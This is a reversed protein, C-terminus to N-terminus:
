LIVLLTQYVVFRYLISCVLLDGDLLQVHVSQWKPYTIGLATLHAKVTKLKLERECVTKKKERTHTKRQIRLPKLSADEDSVLDLEEDAKQVKQAKLASKKLPLVEPEDEEPMAVPKRARAVTGSVPQAQGFKGARRRQPHIQKEQPPTHDPLKGKSKKPPTQQSPLEADVGARTQPEIFGAPLWLGPATELVLDELGFSAFLHQWQAFSSVSRWSNSM